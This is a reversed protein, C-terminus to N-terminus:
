KKVWKRYELFLAMLLSGVFGALLLIVYVVRGLDEFGQGAGTRVAWLNYVAALAAVMAPLYKAYNNLRNLLWALAAFALAVALLILVFRDVSGGGMSDILPTSTSGANTM